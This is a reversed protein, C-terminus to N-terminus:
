QIQNLDIEFEVVQEPRNGLSFRGPRLVIPPLSKAGRWDSVDSTAIRYPGDAVVLSGGNKGSTTTVRYM